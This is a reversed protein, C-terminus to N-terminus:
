CRRRCWARGARSFLGSVSSGGHESLFQQYSGEDPYKETGLFLMHECFHALGPLQQPDTMYGVQVDMSAAAKAANPYSTLLVRLGNALILGRYSRPDLAASEVAFVQLPAGPLAVASTPLPLTPLTAAVGLFTSLVARRTPM